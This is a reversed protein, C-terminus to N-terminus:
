CRSPRGPKRRRSASQVATIVEAVVRAIRDWNLDERAYNLAGVACRDLLAPDLIMTAIADALAKVSADCALLGTQGSHVQEVLGGVPTAVVPRGAAYAAAAVGSQSAEVYPLVAIDSRALFDAIEEEGLWRNHVEVRVADTLLSSYPQLSGSGAIILDVPLGLELLRRHALLLRDLGKYAIIRGFFLLRVPREGRPHVAPRIQKSGFTFAGHQMMWIRDAPYKFAEMAQQRVHDSLVILGDTLRVQHRLVYQRLPYRDGPHFFADHLILVSRVSALGLVPLTAIDWISQFTCLAVQIRHRQLIQRFRFTILPLGALGAGAALKGALTNKNGEFTNITEININGLTKSISFLDSKSASSLTLRPQFLARLKRALEYTFKAGAGEHGWHWLLVNAHLRQTSEATGQQATSPPIFERNMQHM